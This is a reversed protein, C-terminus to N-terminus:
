IVDAQKNNITRHPCARWAGHMGHVGHLDIILSASTLAFVIV